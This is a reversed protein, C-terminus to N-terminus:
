YLHNIQFAACWKENLYESVLRRHCFDPQHESCLLCGNEIIERSVSNEVGRMTLLRLFDSEYVHWDGKNKKFADLIEKTPALEPVHIYDMNCIERFFFRLDNSKAFGPLRDTFATELLTLTANPLTPVPLMQYSIIHFKGPMHIVNMEIRNFM